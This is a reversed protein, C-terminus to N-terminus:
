KPINEWSPQKPTSSPRSPRRRGSEAAVWQAVRGPEAATTIAEIAVVLKSPAWSPANLDAIALVKLQNTSRPTPRVVESRRVSVIKM